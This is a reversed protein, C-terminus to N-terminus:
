EKQQKHNRELGIITHIRNIIWNITTQNYVLLWVQILKRRSPIFYIYGKQGRQNSLLWLGLTKRKGQYKVKVLGLDPNSTAKELIYTCDEYNAALTKHYTM